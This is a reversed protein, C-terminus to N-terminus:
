ILLKSKVRSGFNKELYKKIERSRVMVLVDNVAKRVEEYSVVRILAKIEPVIAPSMSLEDVSMGVLLLAIYPDAAMEGCISVPIGNNHAVETVSKLLALVSPNYYNYLYAVKENGRDAALLFQILDNTGISFFDAHRAFVAPFAAVAPVEVMIGVDINKKYPLGRTRLEKKADKLIVLAEKWETFTSIMPFMIKVNGYISARLIAMLQSKFAKREKLCLRIARWGMVPNDEKNMNVMYTDPMKDGGLDMTRIVVKKPSMKKVIYKYARFQREESPMKNAGIFLFESRFLGVTDAGHSITSNVEEPLEINTGLTVQKGDTTEARLNRLSLSYNKEREKWKRKKTEYRKYYNTSPNLLLEGVTGDLIVEDQNCIAQAINEVGVIAPVELSRAIIATHSTKGGIETAIGLIYEKNIQLLDSVFLNHAIIVVPSDISALKNTLLKNDTLHELLRKEVDKLEQVRSKLYEDQINQFGMAIVNVISRLAYCSEFRKERILKIAKDVIEVDELIMLHADFMKAHELGQVAAVKKRLINIDAKAKSVARLFRKEEKAVNNAPVLQEKVVVELRDLVFAQGIAIGHSVGVGKFSKM